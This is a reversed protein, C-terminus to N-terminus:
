GDKSFYLERPNPQKPELTQQKKTRVDWLQIIGENGREMALAGGDARLGMNETQGFSLVLENQEPRTWLRVTTDDSASALMSGDVSFALDRISGRHGRLSLTTATRLNTWAVLGDGDGSALENGDPSFELASVSNRHPYFEFTPGNALSWVRIGGSTLGSAIQKGDPSFQFITVPGELRPLRVARRKLE